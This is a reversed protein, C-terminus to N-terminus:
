KIKKVNATIESYKFKFCKEFVPLIEILDEKVIEIHISNKGIYGDGWIFGLCYALEPTYETFM